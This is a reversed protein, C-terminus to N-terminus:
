RNPKRIEVLKWEGEKDEQVLVLSATGERIEKAAFERADKEADFLEYPADASAGCVVRFGAM